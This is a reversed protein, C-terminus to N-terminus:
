LLSREEVFAHMDRNREWRYASERAPQLKQAPASVRAELADNGAFDPM